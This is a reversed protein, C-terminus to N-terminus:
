QKDNLSKKNKKVAALAVAVAASGYLFPAWPLNNDGTAPTTGTDPYRVSQLDSNIDTHQAILKGGEEHIEEFVVVTKGALETSDLTFTVEVTGTQETPTFSTSAKITQGNIVLPVCSAKDM